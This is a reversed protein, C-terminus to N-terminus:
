ENFYIGGPIIGVEISQIETNLSLDFVKLTGNSAFDGADTAYLRGDNATMTYFSGDLISSNPLSSSTINKSYVGGNLNYIIDTENVTLNVPHETTAFDFTLSVENNKTDIKVLSGMTENGTFEPNGGCLVWLDNGTIVMSNPVDGVELTVTLTNLNSDIVSILNNQSFGGNHAVYVNTGNIIIREPGFSVPITASVSNSTLDLIAIFDDSADFPDGWNTVYGTNGIAVFYRPNDLGSTISAMSEFSYRNVVEIKHSNNVIIYAKEDSFGISQVINGLNTGNVNNFIAGEVTDFDESIFSVTGTGTAFPGENSILIGFEYDGLPISITEGDSSCSTIILISISLYILRKLLKM